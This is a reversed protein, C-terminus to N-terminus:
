YIKLLSLIFLLIFPSTITNCNSKVYEPYERLPVSKAKLLDELKDNIDHLVNITQYFGDVNSYISVGNRETWPIVRCYAISLLTLFIVKM